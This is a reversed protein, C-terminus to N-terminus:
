PPGTAPEDLTAHARYASPPVGYRDVFSQRLTEASGFGCRDAVAPLPLDTSVLLHAAAETRARRVYRGPTLSLDTLFLRNLHRPTVGAVSALTKSRLDDALHGAIHDLVRRVVDHVSAPANTFMSMQAQNGPRQLYTVLDRSVARALDVGHDEAV